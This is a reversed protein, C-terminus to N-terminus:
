AKLEEAFDEKKTWLVPNIKYSTLATLLHTNVLKEQDNLFAYAAANPSRARVTDQWMFLLAAVRDRSPFSIALIMREPRNRSAPIVFDFYHDLGSAGTVKISAVFRIDNETLYKQVDELFTSLVFPQSLMYMDNIAMIAQLMDHKKQAFERESSAKVVLEEGRLEIGHSNLITNLLKSRRETTFKLGTMLLESITQGDDSIEFGRDKKQIYLLIHDNHQNMFPTAIQVYDGVKSIHTKERLWSLYNEFLNRATEIEM